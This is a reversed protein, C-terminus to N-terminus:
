LLSTRLQKLGHPLDTGQKYVFGEKEREPLSRYFLLGHLLEQDHRNQKWLHHQTFEM